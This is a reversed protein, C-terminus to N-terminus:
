NDVEQELLEQEKKRFNKIVKVHGIASMDNFLDINIEKYLNHEFQFDKVVGVMIGEPFISSKGGTIITDGVKLQAQRPIDEIQCVNYDKGNWTLTGQTDSNKLRVNIKSNSNLISLVTTFNASTRQTVGIIGKSNIVGMDQGIGLNEGANITLVNNRRTFNNNIVKAGLYTIAQSGIQTLSDSPLSQVQKLLELENKLRINEDSLMQNEKRLLFFENISNVKKFLGGTIQNASNVVKAHHYSHQNVTLYIAVFELLLFLLFYRFRKIFYLLQQM